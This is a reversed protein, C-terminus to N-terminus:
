PPTERVSELSTDAGRRVTFHHQLQMHTLRRDGM